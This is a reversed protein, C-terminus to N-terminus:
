LEADESFTKSLLELSGSKSPENVLKISHSRSRCVPRQSGNTGGDASRPGSSSRSQTLRGAM